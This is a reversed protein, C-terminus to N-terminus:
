AYANEKGERVGVEFRPGCTRGEYSVRAELRGFVSGNASRTGASKIRSNM